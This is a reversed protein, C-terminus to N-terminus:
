RYGQNKNEGYTEGGRSYDPKHTASWTQPRRMHIMHEYEAQRAREQQTEHQKREKTTQNIDRVGKVKNFTLKIFDMHTKKQYIITSRLTM